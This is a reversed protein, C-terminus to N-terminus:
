AGQGSYQLLGRRWLGAGLMSFMAFWGAMIGFGQYLFPDHWTLSGTLVRAPFDIMYPFPTLYLWNRVSPTLVALPIILGSLFTYPLWTLQEFSSAREVWFTAMCICYQMAFRVAFAAYISVIGILFAPIIRAPGGPCIWLAAPYLCFFLALMVVFFPFRALQEGMHASVYHWLVNMPRLLMPSLRGENVHWEFEYIMWVATFQRVIFVAAFYGAFEQPTQKLASGPAASATMWISMMIFPLVHALVWLYIEGRYALMLAHQASVLIRLKKLM